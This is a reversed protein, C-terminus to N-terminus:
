VCEGLMCDQPVPICLNLHCNARVQDPAVVKAHLATSKSDREGKHKFSRFRTVFRSGVLFKLLHRQGYMYCPIPLQPVPVGEIMPICCKYCFLLQRKGCKPCKKKEPTPLEPLKLADIDSRKTELMLQQLLVFLISDLDGRRVHVPCRGLGSEVTAKTAHKSDLCVSRSQMLTLFSRFLHLLYKKWSGATEQFCITLNVRSSYLMSSRLAVELNQKMM